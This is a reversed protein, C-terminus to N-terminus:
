CTTRCFQSLFDCWRTCADTSAARFEFMRGAVVGTEGPSVGAPPVLSFSRGDANTRVLTHKRLQIARGKKPEASSKCAAESEFYCLQAGLEESRNIVAVWRAKYGTSGFVSTGGGRKELMGAGAFAAPSSEGAQLLIEVTAASLRREDESMRRSQGADDDVSSESSRGSAGGDAATALGGPDSSTDGDVLTAHPTPKVPPEAAGDSGTDVVETAPSTSPVAPSATPGDASSPESATTAVSADPSDPAPSSGRPSAQPQEGEVTGEATEGAATKGGGAGAEGAGADAGGPGDGKTEEAGGDYDGGRRADSDSDSGSDGDGAHGNSEEPAPSVSIDSTNMVVSFARRASEKRRTGRGGGARGRTKLLNRASSSSFQPPVRMRLWFSAPDATPTAGDLLPGYACDADQPRLRGQM